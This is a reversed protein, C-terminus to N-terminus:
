QQSRQKWREVVARVTSMLVQNSFPKSLRAAVQEFKKFHTLFAQQATIVVVPIRRLENDRSISEQLALGDFKPLMVDLILLDPREQKLAPIVLEGSDVSLVQHGDMELVDHILERLPPDDDAVLIKAM